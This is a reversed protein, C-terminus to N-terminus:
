DGSNAVEALVEGHCCLPSCWCGLIKGKLERKARAVLEPQSLLWERYKSIAEERSSVQYQAASTALHSFPNGWSGPRGIYIDYASRKCHVVWQKHNM